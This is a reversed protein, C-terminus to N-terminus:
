TSAKKRRWYVLLIPIVLVPIGILLCGRFEKSFPILGLCLLQLSISAYCWLPARGDRKKVFRLHSWSISLWCVAGTFGSVALLWTYFATGNFFVYLPFFGWCGAITMWTAVGPIAARNLKTVMAPALGEKGLGYLARVTGYLGSNACSIAATLAVFSFFAAAWKFGYHELAQSFVSQNLSAQTYPFISVLVLLPVVFLVVISIAVRRCDRVVHKSPDDTEASALSIVETGAYNVLIIVMSLVVALGGAPFLTERTMKGATFFSSEHIVGGANGAFGLYIAIGVFAFAAVALIKILSMASDIAGFWKVDLLNLVSVVIGLAATWLMAPCAPIFQHLIIGGGIMESAIYACWDFWYSWGVGAAWPAGILERAFSVFSGERPMEACLEGMAMAVFWVIVGGLAFALVISPGLQSILEGLGLFYSSGIIAGISILQVQWSGLSRRLAPPAAESGDASVSLDKDLKQVSIKNPKAVLAKVKKPLQPHFSKHDSKNKGLYITEFTFLM